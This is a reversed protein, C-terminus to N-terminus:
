GPTLLDALEEELTTLLRAVSTRVPASADPRVGLAESRRREQQLWDIVDDRRRLVQDLKSM